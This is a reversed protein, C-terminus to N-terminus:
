QRFPVETNGNIALKGPGPKWNRVIDIDNQVNLKLKEVDVYGVRNYLAAKNKTSYIAAYKDWYKKASELHNLSNKRYQENKTENLLALDCAANIKESYYQGLMAFGEMDTLTQYLESSPDSKPM